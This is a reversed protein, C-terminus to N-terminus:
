QDYQHCAPPSAGAELETARRQDQFLGFSVLEAGFNNRRRALIALM